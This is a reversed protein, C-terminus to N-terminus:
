LLGMGLWGASLWRGGGGGGCWGVVGAGDDADFEGVEDGVGGGLEEGPRAEVHDDAGVAGAFGGKDAGDAQPEAVRRGDEAAGFFGRFEHFVPTAFRGDLNFERPCVPPRM